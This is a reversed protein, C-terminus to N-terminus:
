RVRSGREHFVPVLKDNATVRLLEYTNGLGAGIECGVRLDVCPKRMEYIVRAEIGRSFNLM